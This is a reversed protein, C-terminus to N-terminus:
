HLLLPNEVFQRVLISFTTWEGLSCNGMDLQWYNGIIPLEYEPTSIIPESVFIYIHHDRTYLSFKYSELDGDLEILTSASSLSGCFVEASVKFTKTAAFEGVLNGPSPAIGSEGILVVLNENGSCLELDREISEGAQYPGILSPFESAGYCTEYGKREVLSLLGQPDLRTPNKIKKFGNFYILREEDWVDIFYCTSPTASGTTAETWSVLFGECRYLSNCFQFCASIDRGIVQKKFFQTQEPYLTDLSDSLSQLFISGIDLNQSELILGFEYNDMTEFLYCDLDSWFNRILGRSQDKFLGELHESFPAFITSM